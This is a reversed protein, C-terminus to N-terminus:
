RGELMEHTWLFPASLGNVTTTGGQRNRSLWGKLGMKVLLNMSATMKRWTM